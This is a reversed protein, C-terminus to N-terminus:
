HITQTKTRKIVRFLTTSISGEERAHDIANSMVAVRKTHRSNATFDCEVICVCEIGEHVCERKTENPVILDKETLGGPNSVRNKIHAGLCPTVSNVARCHSRSLKVFLSQFFAWCNLNAIWERSVEERPKDQLSAPPAM